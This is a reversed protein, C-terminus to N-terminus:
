IVALLVLWCRLLERKGLRKAIRFSSLISEPPQSASVLCKTSIRCFKWVAPCKAETPLVMGAQRAYLWLTIELYKNVSRSKGTFDMKSTPVFARLNFFNCSVFPKHHSRKDHNPKIEAFSLDNKWLVRKQTYRCVLLISRFTRFFRSTNNFGDEMKFAWILFWSLGAAPLNYHYSFLYYQM